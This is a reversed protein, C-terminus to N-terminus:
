EGAEERKHIEGCAAKAVPFDRIKKIPYFLLKRETYVIGHHPIHSRDQEEEKRKKKDVSNPSILAPSYVSAGPQEKQLV